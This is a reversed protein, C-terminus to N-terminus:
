TDMHWLLTDSLDWFFLLKNATQAHHAATLKPEFGQVDREPVPSLCRTVQIVTSTGIQQTTYTTPANSPPSFGAVPMNLTLTHRLGSYGFSQCQFQQQQRLQHHPHWVPQVHINDHQIQLQPLSLQPGHQEHQLWQLQLQSPALRQLQLQLLFASNLPGPGAHLLSHLQQGGDAVKGNWAVHGALTRWSERLFDEERTERTAAAARQQGQRKERTATDEVNAQAQVSVSQPLILGRPM